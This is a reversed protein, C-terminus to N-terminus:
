LNIEIEEDWALFINKRESIDKDKREENPCQDSKEYKNEQFAKTFRKLFRRYYFDRM